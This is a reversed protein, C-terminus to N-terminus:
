FMDRKRERTKGQKTKPPSKRQKDILQHPNALKKKPFLEIRSNRRM